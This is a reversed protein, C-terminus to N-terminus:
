WWDEFFTEDLHKVAAAKVECAMEAVVPEIIQALTLTTKAITGPTMRCGFLDLLVESLRDEPIFHQHNLYAAVARIRAGYQVPATVSKPFSGQLLTKCEPCEKVTVRHETVIIRPPPIDFVQRKIIKKIGVDGIDSGCGSCSYPTPHEVIKEPELVQELTHGPHGIQGGSPRKGKERLSKTRIQNSKKLGDSAPPKSSTQSDLGLSRELEAIRELLAKVEQELREIKQDKEEPSM